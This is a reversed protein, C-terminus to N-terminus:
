QGYASVVIVICVDVTFNPPKESVNFSYDTAIFYKPTHTVRVCSNRVKCDFIKVFNIFNKFSNLRQALFIPISFSM